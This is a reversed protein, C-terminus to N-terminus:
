VVQHVLNWRTGFLADFSYSKVFVIQLSQLGVKRKTEFGLGVFRHGFLPFGLPSHLPLSLLIREIGPHVFLIFELSHTPLHGM